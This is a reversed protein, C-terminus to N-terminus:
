IGGGTISVPQLPMHERNWYDAFARYQENYLVAMNNYSEYERNSLDIKSLVWTVYLEAYVGQAYLETTGSVTGHEEPCDTHKRLIERYILDEVAGLWKTKQETSYANPRTSDVEAIVESVTM